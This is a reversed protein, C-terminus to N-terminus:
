EPSWECTTGATLDEDEVYAWLCGYNCFYTPSGCDATCDRVCIPDHDFIACGCYACPQDTEPTEITTSMRTDVPAILSLTEGPTTNTGARAV